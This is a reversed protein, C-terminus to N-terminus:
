PPAPTVFTAMTVTSGVKWLVSVIIFFIRVVIAIIIIIISTFNLNRNFNM